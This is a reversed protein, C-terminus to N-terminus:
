IGLGHGPILICGGGELCYCTWACNCGVYGLFVARVRFIWALLDSGRLVELM